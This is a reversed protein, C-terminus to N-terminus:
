GFASWDLKDWHVYGCGVGGDSNWIRDSGVGANAVNQRLLINSSTGLALPIVQGVEFKRGSPSALEVTIRREISSDEVRNLGSVVLKQPNGLGSLEGNSDGRAGDRRTTDFGYIPAPFANSNQSVSSYLLTAALKYNSPNPIGGTQAGGGCGSALLTAPAVAGIVALLVARRACLSLIKM